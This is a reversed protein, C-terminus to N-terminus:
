LLELQAPGTLAPALSPMDLRVFYAHLARADPAAARLADLDPLQAVRRDLTVMEINREIGPRARRLADRTKEGGVSELKSWIGDLSGHERLLRAATKPGIGPAGPINDAADGALALWAPIQDPRVGTRAFVEDPGMVPADKIPAVLAVGPGVVQFLDKDNTAIVARVGQDTARCALTALVDDAEEEPLRLQVMRAADLFESLLPLQRRLEDPMPARQAKYGPLLATRRPPLGGDFVVAQHSPQFRDQLQRLAKVFGLIANTPTGDRATLPPIAHFARYAMAMADLLLICPEGPM